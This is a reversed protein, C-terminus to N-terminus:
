SVVGVCIDGPADSKSPPYFGGVGCGPFPYYDTFMLTPISHTIKKLEPGVSAGRNPSGSATNCVPKDPSSSYVITIPM